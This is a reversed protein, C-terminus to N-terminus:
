YEALKQPRGRGRSSRIRRKGGSIHGCRASETGKPFSWFTGRKRGKETRPRELVSAYVDLNNEEQGEGKKTRESTQHNFFPGKTKKERRKPRSM